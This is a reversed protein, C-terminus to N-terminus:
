RKPSVGRRRALEREAGQRAQAWEQKRGADRAKREEHRYRDILAHLEDDSMSALTGTPEDAM